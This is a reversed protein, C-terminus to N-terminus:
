GCRRSRQIERGLLAGGAAGVITGLTHNRGGDVEHGLLAGGAGGLIMGTTGRGRRCSYYRGYRGRGHEWGSVGLDHAASATPQSVAVAGAPTTSAVVGPLVLALAANRLTGM